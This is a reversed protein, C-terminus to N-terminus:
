GFGFSVAGGAPHEDFPDTDSYDADLFNAALDIPLGGTKGGSKLMGGSNLMRLVDGLQEDAKAGERSRVQECPRVPVNSLVPDFGLDYVSKRIMDEYLPFGEWPDFTMSDETSANSARDTEADFADLVAPAPARDSTTEATNEALPRFELAGRQRQEPSRPLTTPLTSSESADPVLRGEELSGRAVLKKKSNVGDAVSELSTDDREQADGPVHARSASNEDCSLDQIKGVNIEGVFPGRQREPSFSMSAADATRPSESLGRHPYKELILKQPTCGVSVGRLASRVQEVAAAADDSATKERPSRGPTTAQSSESSTESSDSSSSASSSSDDEEKLVPPSRERLMKSVLAVEDDKSTSFDETGGYSETPSSLTIGPEESIRGIAEAVSLPSTSDQPSLNRKDSSSQPRNEESSDVSIMNETPPPTSTLKERFMEEGCSSYQDSLPSTTHLMKNAGIMKFDSAGSVLNESASVKSTSAFSAYAPLGWTSNAVISHKGCGVILSSTRAKADDTPSASTQTQDRSDDVSKTGHLLSDRVSCTEEESPSLSTAVRCGEQDLKPMRSSSIGLMICEERNKKASSTVAENEVVTASEDRDVCTQRAAASSSSVRGDPELSHGSDVPQETLRSIERLSTDSMRMSSSSFASCTSPAATSVTTFSVDAKIGGEAAVFSLSPAASASSPRSEGEDADEASVESSMRRTGTEMPTSSALLSPALVAVVVSARGKEDIPSANGQDDPLERDCASMTRVSERSTKATKAVVLSASLTGTAVLDDDQQLSIRSESKRNTTIITAPQQENAKSVPRLKKLADLYISGTPGEEPDDRAFTKGPPTTKRM